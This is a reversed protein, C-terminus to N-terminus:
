DTKRIKNGCFPCSNNDWAGHMKKINIMDSCSSCPFLEGDKIKINNIINKPDFIYGRVRDELIKQDTVFTLKRDKSHLDYISAYNLAYISLKNQVSLEKPAIHPKRFHLLRHYILESYEICNLCEMNEKSEEITFHSSKKSICYRELEHWVTLINVQDRINSLKKDGNNKISGIVMPQSIYKFPRGRALQKKRYNKYESWCNLLMTGFDRSNGMSALILMEFNEDNNFLLKYNYDEHKFYYKLRKNIFDKFFSLCLEKDSKSNEYVLGEDLSIYHQLDGGVELYHLSGRYPVIGIWFYIPDDIIRDIFFSLYKQLDQNYYLKEWEDVYFTISSIQLLKMLDLIQERISGISLFNIYTNNRSISNSCEEIQKALIETNFDIKDIGLSASIKAGFELLEKNLDTKSVTGKEFENFHENGAHAIIRFSAIKIIAKKYNSVLQKQNHDFLSILRDFLKKNVIKALIMELQKFLEDYVFISFIRDFLEQDINNPVHLRKVNLYICLAKEEFFNTNIYDRSLLFLHTKGTGRLGSVVGSARKSYSKLDSLYNKSDVHIEKLEEIKENNVDMDLEYDARLDLFAKNMKEIFEDDNVFNKLELNNM